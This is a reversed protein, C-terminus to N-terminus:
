RRISDVECVGIGVRWLGIRSEDDETAFSVDLADKLANLQEFAGEVISGMM